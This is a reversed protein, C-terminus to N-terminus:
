QYYKKHHVANWMRPVLTGDLRSLTYSGAIGVRVVMYPGEWNPQFKEGTPNATIEFVRRLVLERPLFTHSKVRRNHLNELRQQYSAIRVVAVERLEDIIDLDNVLAEMNAKEPIETRVTPMGIETPIIAEIGYTLVFPLIGTPKRSTTRYAWLVGLLEDVWKGKTFALM